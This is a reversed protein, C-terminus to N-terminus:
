VVEEGFRVLRQREIPFFRNPFVEIYGSSRSYSELRAISLGDNETRNSPFFYDFSAIPDSIENCGLQCCADGFVDEFTKTM